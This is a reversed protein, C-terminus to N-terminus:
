AQGDSSFLRGLPEDLSLLFSWTIEDGTSISDLKRRGLCELGIECNMMWVRMVLHTLVVDIERQITYNM